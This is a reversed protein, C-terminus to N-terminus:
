QGQAPPSEATNDRNLQGRAPNAVEGPQDEGKSYTIVIYVYMGGRPRGIVSTCLPPITGQSTAFRGVAGSSSKEMCFYSRM